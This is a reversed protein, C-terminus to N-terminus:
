DNSDDSLWSHVMGLVDSKLNMGALLRLRAAINRYSEEFRTASSAHMMYECTQTVAAAVLRDANYNLKEGPDQPVTLRQVVDEQLKMPRLGARLYEVPLKHAAEYEEIFLLSRNNRHNRFVCAQDTRSRKQRELVEQANDSMTNLHNEFEIKTCGNLLPQAEQIRMLEEMVDIVKEEVAFRQYSELDKESALPRRCLTHGLSKLADRSTFVKRPSAGDPCLLSYIRHM